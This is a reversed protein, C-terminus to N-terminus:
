VARFVRERCSARGIEGSVANAISGTAWNTANFRGSNVSATLGSGRSITSVSLNADNSNSIATTENGALANFDFTLIQANTKFSIMVGFVISIVVTLLWNKM